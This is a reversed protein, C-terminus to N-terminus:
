ELLEAHNDGCRRAVLLEAAELLRALLRVLRHRHLGVKVAPARFRRLAHGRSGLHLSRGVIEVHYGVLGSVAMVTHRPVRTPVMLADALNGTGAVCDHGGKLPGEERMGAKEDNDVAVHAMLPIPPREGLRQGEVPLPSRQRCVADSVHSGYLHSPGLTHRKACHRVLVHQRPDPRCVVAVSDMIDAAVVAHVVIVGCHLHHEKVEMPRREENFRRESADPDISSLAYHAAAEGIGRSRDVLLNVVFTQVRTLMMPEVLADFPRYIKVWCEDNLPARRDCGDQPRTGIGEIPRRRVISSKVEESLGSAQVAGFPSKWLWKPQPWRGCQM